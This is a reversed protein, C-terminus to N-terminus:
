PVENNQGEKREIVERFSRAEGRLTPQFEPLDPDKRKKRKRRMPPGASSAPKLVEKSIQPIVSKKETKIEEM